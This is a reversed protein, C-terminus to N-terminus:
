GDAVGHDYHLHTAVVDTVDEPAVDLAALGEPLHGQELRTRGFDASVTRATAEDFAV